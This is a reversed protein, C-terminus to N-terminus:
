RWTVVANGLKWGWHRPIFLLFIEMVLKNNTNLWTCVRLLGCAPSGPASTFM